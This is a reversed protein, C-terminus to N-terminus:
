NHNSVALESHNRIEVSMRLTKFDPQPSEISFDNM